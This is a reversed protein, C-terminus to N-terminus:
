IREIDANNDGWNSKIEQESINYYDRVNFPGAKTCGSNLNILTAMSSQATAIIYSETKIKIKDGLRFPKPFLSPFQEEIKKKWDACAARHAEKVFEPSVELVDSKFQGATGTCTNNTTNMLHENNKFQEFTLRKTGDNYDKSSDWGYGGKAATRFYMVIKGRGVASKMGGVEDFSKITPCGEFIVRWYEIIEKCQEWNEAIVAFPEIESVPIFKIPKLGNPQGSDDKEVEVWVGGNYDKSCTYIKGYTFEGLVCNEVCVVKTGKKFREM